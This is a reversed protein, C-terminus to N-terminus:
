RSTTPDVLGERVAVMVAQARDYIGLKHYTSSIHNRLTKPSIGLQRAIADNNGEGALAQLVSRERATLRALAASSRPGGAVGSDPIAVLPGKGEALAVATKCFEAPTSDKAVYGNAGADLATRVHESGEFMTLVGIAVSPNTRRIFRIAEVGGMGPMQLDMLVLDPLTVAVRAAGEEGSGAHGVVEFRGDATLIQAIGERFLANDDVLVVRIAM